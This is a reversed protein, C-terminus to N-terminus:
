NQGMDTDYSEMIKIAFDFARNAEEALDDGLKARLRTMLEEKNTFELANHPADVIKKIMQGGYLDGMHWTYLHALVKRSDNAISMIYQYYKITSPRFNHRPGDKIMELYDKYLLHTRLIDKIDYVLGCTNAACEIVNYFLCKQYTFDAWTNLDMTKNFVRRMFQTNEARAHSQATLERLSM